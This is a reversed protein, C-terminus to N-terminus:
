VVSKRDVAEAEAIANAVADEDTVNVAAFRGGIEAAKANGLDANLDFLTVKAGRAALLEATAAGLGSAGGTVIAALGQIDM